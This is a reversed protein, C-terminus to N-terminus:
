PTEKGLRRRQSDLRPHMSVSNFPFFVPSPRLHPPTPNTAKDFYSVMGLVPNGTGLAITNFRSLFNTFATLWATRGATSFQTAPQTNMQAQVVGTFYTRPHGGRVRRSVNWSAVACGSPPIGINGAGGLAGTQTLPQVTTFGTPILEVAKAQRWIIDSDQAATIALIPNDTGSTAALVGMLLAVDPATWGTGASNKCHFVNAWSGTNVSNGGSLVLQLVGPAPPLTTVPLSSVPTSRCVSPHCVDTQCSDCMQGLRAIRIYLRSLELKPLAPDPPAKEHRQRSACDLPFALSSEGGTLSAERCVRGGVVM